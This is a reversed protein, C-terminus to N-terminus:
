CVAGALALAVLNWAVCFGYFMNVRRLLRVRGSRSVYWALGIGAAKAIALGLAPHAGNGLLPRLLPNAEAAGHALFLLTALSDLLQLGIFQALAM